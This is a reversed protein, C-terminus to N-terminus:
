VEAESDTEVTIQSDNGDAESDTQIAEQSENVNALAKELLSVLFTELTQNKTAAYAKAQRYLEDPLEITITM